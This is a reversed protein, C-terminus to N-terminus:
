LMAGINFIDPVEILTQKYDKLYKGAVTDDAYYDKLLDSKEINFKAKSNNAKREINTRVWSFHHM